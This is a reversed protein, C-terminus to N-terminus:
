ESLFLKQIGTFIDEVNLLDMCPAYQCSPKCRRCAPVPPSFVRHRAPKASFPGWRQPSYTRKLPYFSVTSVDLAVACHLPGTSGGVFLAANALLALYNRLPLAELMLYDKFGPLQSYSKLEEASGSVLFRMGALNMKEALKEFKALPLDKSSGGSGPHLVIFREKPGIAYRTELYNQGWAQEKATLYIRPYADGELGFAKRALDLMYQAENQLSASRRQRFRLNFLLSRLKTLPSGSLPGIRVPINALWPSFVANKYAILTLSVDNDQIQKAIEKYTLGDVTLIKDIFPNQELVPSAYERVVFTLYAAPFRKKLLEAVPTALVLDGIRDTRFVAIRLAEGRNDLLRAIKKAPRRMAM